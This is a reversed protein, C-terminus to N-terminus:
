QNKRFVIKGGCYPCFKGDCRFAVEGCATAYEISLKKIEWGCVVVDHMNVISIIDNVFTAAMREIQERKMQYGRTQETALM